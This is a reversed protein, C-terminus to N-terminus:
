GDQQFSLVAEEVDDFIRLIDAFGSMQLVRFVSAQVSALRFDGGQRRSSKLTGLLVRLGASSTYQVNALDAVLDNRGQELIEDLRQTLEAATLADISGDLAVVTIQDVERITIKM